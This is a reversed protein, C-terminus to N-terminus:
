KMVAITCYEREGSETELQCFYVGSAFRTCDLVYENDVIGWGEIGTEFVLDGAMNYLRLTIGSEQKLGFRVTTHDGAPNPYNYVYGIAKDYKTAPQLEKTYSGLNAASGYLANWEILTPPESVFGNIEGERTLAFLGGGNGSGAFVPLTEIRGGVAWPFRPLRNGQRDFGVLEGNGTGVFLEKSGDGDLDVVTPNTLIPGAPIYHSVTIPFDSVITGNYNYAYILNDGCFLIELLGDDDIDTLSMESCIPAGVDILLLEEYNIILTGNFYVAATEYEGDGDFDAAAAGRPNAKREAAPVGQEWDPISLLFSGSADAMVRSPAEDLSGGTLRNGNKDFVLIEAVTNIVLIETGASQPDYDVLMPAVNVPADTTEEFLKIAEGTFSLAATTFCAVTAADTVVVVEAFGDGDLDGCALPLNIRRGNTVRGYVALTDYVKGSGYYVEREVIVEEGSHPTFLSSGDFRYALIYNDIATVIEKSGDGDLDYVVLPQARGGIYNPWGPLHGDIHVDCEMIRLSASIDAITIGTYGNNNATSSPNTHPGFTSNGNIEFLDQQQGYPGYGSIYEGDFDIFGDAEELALFRHHNDWSIVTDIIDPYCFWQLHNEDFNSIGNGNYDMRAVREDVHWILMGSGPILNDYEHNNERETPIPSRPYLIVETASDQMIGTIEHDDLNTRRNEVLFYEDANIPVLLVKAKDS